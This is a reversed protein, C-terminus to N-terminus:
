SPSIPTPEAVAEQAKKREYSLVIERMYDLFHAKIEAGTANRLAGSADRSNLFAGFAEAIRPDQAPPTTITMTAM